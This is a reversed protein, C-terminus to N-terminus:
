TELSRQQKHDKVLPNSVHLLQQPRVPLEKVATWGRGVTGVTEAMKILKKKKRKKIQQM